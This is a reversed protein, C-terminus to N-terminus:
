TILDTLGTDTYSPSNQWGSDNGGGATCTFYYEVGNPDTAIAATMSISSPGTAYPMTAWMMPDPTPPTGDETTASRSASPATENLNISKDRATVTYTYKTREALSTDDYVNSNQWGSDHNPDTINAFYYEVGNPDSAVTAIMSISTPGTTYPATAWTMPNPVPATGDQTTASQASSAATLNQNSSKDRATVTYTFTTRQALSTDNYTTSDQWGSDHNPDTVNAFYYEVGSPDTASTATM